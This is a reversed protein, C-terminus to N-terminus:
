SCDATLTPSGNRTGLPPSTSSLLKTFWRNFDLRLLLQSLHTGCPQSRLSALLQLLFKLQTLFEDNMQQLENEEEASLSFQWSTVKVCFTECLSIFSILSRHVPNAKFGITKDSPILPLKHDPKNLGMLIFTQSLVNTLFVTHAQQVKQFDKTARISTQLQIYQSELVDVQLYYQLNNILFILNNRLQWVASGRNLQASSKETIQNSWVTNLEFQVKTVRLLFGFLHNYNDLVETSFLLHLPWSVKYNLSLLQWGPLSSISEDDKTKDKVPISFSFKELVSEDNLFVKRAAIQLAQNVDRSTTSCPPKALVPAAQKIFELFLEGRGLLFFDKMLKLQLFLKDKDVALQWLHETVCSHIEDITKEFEFVDLIETSQLEQLKIFFEREKGGWMSVENRVNQTTSLDNVDMPNNGFMLVTQGVFLIKYALSAAIYPPLVEFDIVYECFGPYLPIDNGQTVSKSDGGPVASKSDSGVESEKDFESKVTRLSLCPSIDGARQIFFERYTDNLHGYLLWSSLQKLMVVHCGHVLRRIAHAVEPVGSSLHRYLICLFKFGHINQQKIQSLLRSLIYFLTSYKEAVYKIRTLPLHPDNLAEEELKALEKRYPELVDNLTNCFAQLYLGKQLKYPGELGLNTEITDDSRNDIAGVDIEQGIQCINEEVFDKLNKYYSAIQQIRDLVAREGPHLFTRLESGRSHSFFSGQFGALAMLVEHLM